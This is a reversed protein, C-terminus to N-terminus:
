LSNGTANASTAAARVMRRGRESLAWIGPTSPSGDGREYTVIGQRKLAQLRAVVHRHPFQLREALAAARVDQSSEILVSLIRHNLKTRQTATLM